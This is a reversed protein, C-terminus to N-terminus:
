IRIVGFILYLSRKSESYSIQRNSFFLPDNVYDFRYRSTEGSLPTPITYNKALYKKVPNSEDEEEQIETEAYIFKSTSRNDSAAAKNNFVPCNKLLEVQSLESRQQGTTSFTGYPQVTEIHCGLLLSFFPFLFALISRKMAAFYIFPFIIDLNKYFNLETLGYFHNKSCHL